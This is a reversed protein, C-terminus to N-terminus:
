QEELEGSPLVTIQQENIWIRINPIDHPPHVDDGTLGGTAIDVVLRGDDGRYLSVELGDLEADAAM